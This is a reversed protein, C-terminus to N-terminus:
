DEKLSGVTAASVKNGDADIGLLERVEEEGDLFHVMEEPDLYRMLTILEGM